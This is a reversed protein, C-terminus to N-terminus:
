VYEWHHITVDLGALNAAKIFDAFSFWDDFIQKTWGDTSLYVVKIKRSKKM